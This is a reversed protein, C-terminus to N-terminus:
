VSAANGAAAAEGGGAEVQRIMAGFRRLAQRVPLEPGELGLLLLAASGLFANGILCAVQVPTFPGVGGFREGAERALGEILEYWGRLDRRVVAAIEPNSWG